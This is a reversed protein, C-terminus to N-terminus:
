DGCVGLRCLAGGFSRAENSQKVGIKTPTVSRTLEDARLVQRRERV